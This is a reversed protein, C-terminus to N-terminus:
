RVTLSARRLFNGCVFGGTSRHPYQWFAIRRALRAYLVTLCTPVILWVAAQRHRRRRAYETRAKSLPLEAIELQQFVGDSAPAYTRQTPPIFLSIALNAGRHAVTSSAYRTHYSQLRASSSHTEMERTPGCGAGRQNPSTGFRVTADALWQVWASPQTCAMM